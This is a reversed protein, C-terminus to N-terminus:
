ISGLRNSGFGGGHRVGYDEGSGQVVGVLAAQGETSLTRLWAKLHRDEERVIKPREDTLLVQLLKQILQVLDEQYSYHKRIKANGIVKLENTALNSNLIKAM